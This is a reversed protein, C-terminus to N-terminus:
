TARWTIPSAKLSTTSSNPQCMLDTLAMDLPVCFPQYLLQLPPRLRIGIAPQLRNPHRRFLTASKPHNFSSTRRRRGPSAASNARITSSYRLAFGCSILPSLSWPLDTETTTAPDTMGTGRAQRIPFVHYSLGRKPATTYGPQVCRGTLGSIAPEFGTPGAAPLQEGVSCAWPRFTPSPGDQLAM